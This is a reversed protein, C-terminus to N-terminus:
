NSSLSDQDTSSATNCIYMQLVFEPYMNHGWVFCFLFTTIAWHSFLLTIIYQIKLSFTWNIYGSQVHFRYWIYRFKLFIFIRIIPRIQLIENTCVPSISFPCFITAESDSVRQAWSGAIIDSIRWDSHYKRTAVTRLSGYICIIPPTRSPIDVLLRRFQHGQIPTRTEPYPVALYAKVRPGLSLYIRGETGSTTGYSSELGEFLRLWKWSRGSLM